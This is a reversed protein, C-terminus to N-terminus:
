CLGFFGWVVGYFGGGGCVWLFFVVVSLMVCVWLGAIFVCRFEFPINDTCGGCGLFGCGPMCGCRATAFLRGGIVFYVFWYCVWVGVFDVDGLFQVQCQKVRSRPSISALSLSLLYNVWVDRIRNFFFLIVGLVGIVFFCFVILYYCVFIFCVWGFVCDFIYM